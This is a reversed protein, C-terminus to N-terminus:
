RVNVMFGPKRGYRLVKLGGASSVYFGNGSEDVVEPISIEGSSRLIDVRKVGEPLGPVVAKLVSGEKMVLSAVSPVEDGAASVPLELSAGSAVEIAGAVRGTLRLTGESVVTAGAYTNTSALELIGEGLKTLGGTGEINANANIKTLKDVPAVVKLGGDEIFIVGKDHGDKKELFMEREGNSVLTTNDFYCFHKNPNTAFVRFVSTTVISDSFRAEIGNTDFGNRADPCLQISSSFSVVSNTVFLWSRGARHGIKLNYGFVSSDVVDLRGNRAAAYGYFMGIYLQSQSATLKLLSNDLVKVEVPTATSKNGSADLGDGNDRSIIYAPTQTITVSANNTIVLQRRECDEINSGGATFLNPTTLSANDVVVKGTSWPLYGDKANRYTYAGNRLTTGSAIVPDAGDPQDFSAAGDGCLDLAGEYLCASFGALGGNAILTGPGTKVLLSTNLGENVFGKSFAVDGEAHVSLEAKDTSIAVDIAQASASLNTVFNDIKLTDSLSAGAITHSSINENFLLSKLVVREGFDVTSTGGNDIVLTDGSYIHRDQGSWNEKTGWSTDSGAGTWVITGNQIGQRVLQVSGEVISFGYGEEVEVTENLEKAIKELFGATNSKLLATNRPWTDVGTIVFSGSYDTVDNIEAGYGAVSVSGGESIAMAPLFPVSSFVANAGASVTLAGKISGTIELRGAEVATVGTYANDASLVVTGAGRKTFGGDGQLMASVELSSGEPAELVLGNGTLTHPCKPDGTPSADIFKAEPTGAPKFLAGDFTVTTGGNAHPYQMKYFPTEVTCDKLHITAGTWRAYGNFGYIGKTAKVIGNDVLFKFESCNYGLYLAGQEMVGGDNVEVIAHHGAPNGDNKKGVYVKDPLTLVSGEGTVRVAANEASGNRIGIIDVYGSKPQFAVKAGSAVILQRLKTNNNGDDVGSGRFLQTNSILSAGDKVTVTGEIWPWYDGFYTNNMIPQQAISHEVVTDNGSIVLNGGNLGYFVPTSPTATIEVDNGATIEHVSIKETIFGEALVELEAYGVYGNEQGGFNFIIEVADACIPSGDEMKLTVCACCNNGSYSVSSPSLVIEEGGATKAVVSSVSLTDRGTGVWTSYIRVETITRAEGLSYRLIANNALCTTMDNAKGKALGDTLAEYKKSGESTSLGSSSAEPVRGFIANNESPVFGGDWSSKEWIAKVAQEDDAFAASMALTAIAALSLAAIKKM